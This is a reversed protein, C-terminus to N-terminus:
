DVRGTVANIGDKLAQAFVDGILKNLDEESMQIVPQDTDFGPSPPDALRGTAKEFEGAIFTTIAHKLSDDTILMPTDGDVIVAINKEEDDDDDSEESTELQDLVEGLLGSAQRLRDENAGSLVRGAKLVSTLQDLTAALQAAPTPMDLGLRKLAKVAHANAPVPVLSWELLEWETYRWGRSGNPEYTLPQFGVSAGNLVGQEFANRVRDAFPDDRLWAFDAVIGKGPQVTLSVSKAVPIGGNDHGFMVIPNRKYNALQAGEPVLIDGERDEDMTSITIRADAGGGAKQPTVLCTHQKTAPVITKM